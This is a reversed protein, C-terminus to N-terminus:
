QNAAINSRDSVVAFARPDERKAFVTRKLLYDVSAKGPGFALMILALMLLPFAADNIFDDYGKQHQGAFFEKFTDRSAAAYAVIFNFVLPISILRTALGLLLLTGGLLEMSGSIYVNVAPFPVGWGTFADITDQIHHLHGWGSEALQWGWTLRLALLVASQLNGAACILHGYLSTALVVSRNQTIAEM